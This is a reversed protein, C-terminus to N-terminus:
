SCHRSKPWKNTHTGGSKLSSCHSSVVWLWADNIVTAMLLHMRIFEGVPLDNLLWAMM